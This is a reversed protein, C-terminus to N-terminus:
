SSPKRQASRSQRLNARAELEAVLRRLDETTLNALEQDAIRGGPDRQLADLRAVLEARDLARLESPVRTSQRQDSRAPSLQRRMGALKADLARRVKRAWMDERVGFDEEFSVASVEQIVRELPHTPEPDSSRSRRRHTM